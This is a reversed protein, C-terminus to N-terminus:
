NDPGSPAAPTSSGSSSSPSSAVDRYDVAYSDLGAASAHSQGEGPSAKFTEMRDVAAPDPQASALDKKQLGRIGIPVKASSQSGSGGGLMGTLGRFFSSGGSDGSSSAAASGGGIRLKSAAMWGVKGGADVRALSGQMSLVKVEQGASLTALVPSGSDASKRLDAALTVTAPDRRSKAAQADPALVMVACWAAMVLPLFLKKM